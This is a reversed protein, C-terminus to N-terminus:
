QGHGQDGRISRHRAHLRGGQVPEQQEGHREPDQWDARGGRRAGAAQREHAPRRLIPHLRRAQGGDRVGAHRGLRLAHDGGEGRPGAAARGASDLCQHLLEPRGQGAPLGATERQPEVRCSLGGEEPWPLHGGGAVQPARCPQGDYRLRCRRLRLRQPVQLDRCPGQGTEASPRCGGAASPGHGGCEPIPAAPRGLGLHDPGPDARGRRRAEPLAPDVRGPRVRQHLLHPKLREAQQARLPPRLLEM